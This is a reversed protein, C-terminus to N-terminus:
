DSASELAFASATYIPAPSRPRNAQRTLLEDLKEPSQSAVMQYNAITPPLDTEALPATARQVGAREPPSVTPPWALFFTAAIAVAVAGLWDECADPQRGSQLHWPVRLRTTV